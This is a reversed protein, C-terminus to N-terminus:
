KFKWSQHCSALLFRWAMYDALSSFNYSWTIPQKQWTLVGHDRGFDKGKEKQTLVANVIPDARHTHEWKGPHDWCSANVPQVSLQSRPSCCLHTLPSSLSSAFMVICTRPHSLVGATKQLKHVRLIASLQPAQRLGAWFVSSCPSGFARCSPAIFGPMWRQGSSHGPPLKGEGRKM